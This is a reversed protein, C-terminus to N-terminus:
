QVSMTGEVFSSIFYNGGPVLTLALTGQTIPATDGPNKGTIDVALLGSFVTSITDLGVLGDGGVEYGLTPISGGFMMSANDALVILSRQYIDAFLGGPLSISYNSKDKGTLALTVPKATGVNPDAFTGGLNVTDGAVVNNLTAGSILATVTGDYPRSLAVPTGSLTLPRESITATLGGAPQSFSYNGAATGTVVLTVPKTGVNKDAFQGAMSAGDTGLLGSISSINSITTLTTGDYVKDAAVLTTGTYTYTLLRPTIDAHLSPGTYSYIYNVADNGTLALSVLKNTGVNASTFNGQLYADDLSGSGDARVVL